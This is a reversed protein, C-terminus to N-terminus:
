IRELAKICSISMTGNVDLPLSINKIIFDGYIGTAADRVTIRSNPELYYIPIMNLSIQENYNTYQYIENKIQEYASNLYGGTALKSYTESDMQLYELGKEICEERIESTEETDSEILVIDLFDPEFLCNIHQNNIINTRRGINNVNLENLASNTDIIDLFYDISEPNNIAQERFAGQSIVNGAEDYNLKRIDYIKCWENKLQEFYFTQELGNVEAQLGRMYLETRYDSPYVKELKYDTLIYNSKKIYNEWTWVKTTSNDYYYVNIKGTTPFDNKSTYSIPNSPCTEKKYETEIYKGVPSNPSWRYIEKKNKDYYYQGIEGQLPFVSIKNVDDGSEITRKDYQLPMKAKELGDDDTYFFVQYPIQSLQPKEDIALHYRIPFKLGTSKQQRVGWVMFDNKIQEYKPSNNYSLILHGDDFTYVSKGSTYDVLYNEKLLQDIRLKEGAANQELQNIKFTAYTTNLFNRIQRFRFNGNIDYYYEYNGLMNKIKDLISTVTDGANAVLQGQYIFDSLIYGINDGYNAQIIRKEIQKESLGNESKIKQILDAKNLSYQYYLKTEESQIEPFHYFFIPSSGTWQIVRKLRLDIDDILIKGIQQGGWHNVLQQITQFITIEKIYGYGDEDISDIENLIVSTPFVGGCQGNLLAMKDHLTLSINIGNSDRSINTGTIVFVGQPFWLIPYQTYRDTVNKFGILLQVKKNISLLYRTNTLDNKYQDAIVSINCTRRMASSGDLTINGGSVIGQIQAVRKEEKFTLVVIKAYKQKLKVKDFQKLFSPDNLYPFNYM